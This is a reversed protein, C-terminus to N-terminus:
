LRVTVLLSQDDRPLPTLRTIRTMEELLVIKYDQPNAAIFREVPVTVTGYFQVESLSYMGMTSSKTLHLEFRRFSAPANLTFTKRTASGWDVDNQRDLVFPASAEDYARFEWSLPDNWASGAVAYSAVTQPHTFDCRWWAAGENGSLWADDRAPNGNVALWPKLYPHYSIVSSASVTCEPAVNDSMTPILPGPQADTNGLVELLTVIRTRKPDAAHPIDLIEDPLLQISEQTLCQSSVPFSVPLANQRSQELWHRFTALRTNLSTM